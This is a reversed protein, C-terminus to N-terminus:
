SVQFFINRLVKQYYTPLKGYGLISNKVKNIKFIM